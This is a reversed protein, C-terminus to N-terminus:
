HLCISKNSKQVQQECSPLNHMWELMRLNMQERKETECQELDMELEPVSHDEQWFLEVDKIIHWEQDPVLEGIGVVGEGIEVPKIKDILIDESYKNYAM